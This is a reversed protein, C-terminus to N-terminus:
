TRWWNEITGRFRSYLYSMALLLVGLAAFAAMRYLLGLSWVDYLYLKLVVLGILGVGLLRNLASRTVAGAAVLAVAYAALLISIATSQVSTVNEPVANRAAWGTAELCLACLLVFHGAVYTVLAPGQERAWWAAAMLCAAALVFTLCRVNLLTAYATTPFMTADVALLRILVLVFLCLSGVVARRDRLRAGIWALAAAELSWAMTVRYGAFQVPAALALLVWAAGAALAAGRRDHDWLAAAAGMHAVALVVAFLGEFAPEPLRLLGYGAAFYLSANAAVLLLDAFRLPIGRGRVRYVPWGLFLAFGATVGAFEGWLGGHHGWAGYGAWFGALSALVTWPWGRRDALVLGAAAVLLMPVFGAQAGGAVNAVAIGALVQAAGAVWPMRSAAFLGYLALTFLTFALREGDLAPWQTGYLTVAGILAMAELGRWRRALWMGGASLLLTYALVFWPDRGTDLLMPTAYGGALAIAAIAAGAYRLALAGAGATTVAMLTYAVPRGMLHYLAFGAWVSLYLFAIGAGTLAQAYTRQGGRWLREGFGAALAGVAVGLLMRGTQTIWENEFAYKFFFAVGIVLTVAGIRSIWTLGFVSELAPEPEATSGPPTEAPPLTPREPASSGVEAVPEAAASPRAGAPPTPPEPAPSGATPEPEAAAGPPSGFPPQAPLGARGEGAPPFQPALQQEPTREPPVAPERQLGPAAEVRAALAAELRGLREDMQRQARVLKALAESFVEMREHDQPTM